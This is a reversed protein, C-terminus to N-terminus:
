FHNKGSSISTKRPPIPVNELVPEEETLIMSVRQVVPMGISGRLTSHIRSIPTLVISKRQNDKQVEKCLKKLNEVWIKKEEPDKASIRLFM